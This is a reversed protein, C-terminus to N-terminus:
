VHVVIRCVVRVSRSVSVIPGLTPRVSVSRCFGFYKQDRGRAVGTNTFGTLGYRSKQFFQKARAAAPQCMECQFM